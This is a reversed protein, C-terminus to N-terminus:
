IMEHAKAALLSHILSPIICDHKGKHYSFIAGALCNLNWTQESTHHTRYKRMRVVTSFSNKRQIAVESLILLIPCSSWWRASPFTQEHQKEEALPYKRLPKMSFPKCYSNGLVGPVGAVSTGSHDSCSYQFFLRSLVLCGSNKSIIHHILMNWIKQLIKQVWPIGILSKWYSWHTVGWFYFPFSSQM